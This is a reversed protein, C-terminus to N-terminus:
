GRAAVSSNQCRGSGVPKGGGEIASGDLIAGKDGM